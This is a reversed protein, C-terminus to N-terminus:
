TLLNGIDGRVFCPGEIRALEDMAQELAALPQQRAWFVPGGRWRPFGYGHVLVVDVDSARAAVGEGLLRAAENAMAALARRQIEAASIERREIGRRASANVIIERVVADTETSRKGDVYTYYGRGANRGLRGQECLHELIPVYREDPHRTAAQARRMRWPIDLGSLDTVAFPGMAFGFAQLATDVQEPWAGDELMFECHRRYTTYIRNGIFGFSNSTVVPQKGLTRAFRMATALVEPSTQAGRVIELLKMVNAPIFFHLGLVDRPRATARAMKDIDLYSTNTALVAGTRAHRDISAFVACKIEMDEFVAEIVLDAQALAALDLTMQANEILRQATDAGLKGAATRREYHDRIHSMGRELAAADQDLLIVKMGADLVAIAIGAGMKGAGIVAVSAITRETTGAPLDLKLSEREAFFLYRLAAAEESRSLRLFAAREDALAADFPLRAATGVADIAALIAPRSKGARKVEKVAAETVDTAEAPVPLDRTRRRKGALGRAYRIAAERVQRDVVEDVLGIKLAEGAKIRESGGIMRMARALGVLRPLRQTGGAGPILGLSVEPLGLVCSKEAVRADCTLALELGGGLATGHLAAVVPKVGADLESLVRPLSPLLPPRGFERIDAGAMFQKGAGILVAARLQPTDNLLQIAEMLGQRVGVSSANVPPNDITIILVDDVRETHVKSTNNEM